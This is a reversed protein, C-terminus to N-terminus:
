WLEPGQRGHFTSGASPWMSDPHEGPAFLIIVGGLPAYPTCLTSVSVFGHPKKKQSKGGADANVSGPGPCLCKKVEKGRFVVAKSKPLLWLVLTLGVFVLCVANGEKALSVNFNGVVKRATDCLHLMVIVSADWISNKFTITEENFFSSLVVDCMVRLSGSIFFNYLNSLSLSESSISQFMQNSQFISCWQKKPRFFDEQSEKAEFVGVLTM